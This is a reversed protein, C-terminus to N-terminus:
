VPSSFGWFRPKTRSRPAAARKAGARLVTTASSRGKVCAHPPPRAGAVRRMQPPRCVKCRRISRIPPPASCTPRQSPRSSRTPPHLSHTPPAAPADSGHTPAPPLKRRRSRMAAPPASPRPLPPPRHLRPHLGASGCTCPWRSSADAAPPLLRPRRSSSRPRSSARPLRHPITPHGFPYSSLLFFIFSFSFSISLLFFFFFFHSFPLYFTSLPLNSM